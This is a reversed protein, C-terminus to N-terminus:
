RVEGTYLGEELRMHPYVKADRLICGPEIVVDDAVVSLGSIETPRERTSGVAVHRGIISGEVKAYPGIRARDMVASDEISAGEGIITYNDICSNKVRVGDSIRCHRGILVPEELVIRGMRMMRAIRRRGAVSEPSRGRVWIRKGPVIRAHFESFYALRGSLVASLTELYRSPTGVDFWAGELTYGYVAHGSQLLHPFFDYGFDMRGTERRRSAMENLIARAEPSLLYLGTNILNSSTEASQPKEQFSTIRMEEDVQVVGYGEVNEVRKLCITAVAKRESHFRLLDPLDLDFLNDGQFVLSPGSVDYYNLTIRASDASGMDEENPEYRVHVRPRIRYKSSFGYGEQFYDFLDRFNRYGKVGLLFCRVGQRALGLMAIELMPVTALRVMAKSTEATLPMLRRAMGGIPIVVTVDRASCDM